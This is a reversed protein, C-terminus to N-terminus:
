RFYNKKYGRYMRWLGYLICMVGFIKDLENPPYDELFAIHFKNRFLFFVGIFMFVLGMAYDMLSRRFAIQRRKRKEYEELM